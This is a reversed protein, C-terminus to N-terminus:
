LFDEEEVEESSEQKKVKKATKLPTKKEVKVRDLTM